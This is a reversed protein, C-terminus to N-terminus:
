DHSSEAENQRSHRAARLRTMLSGGSGVSSTGPEVNWSGQVKFRLGKGAGGGGTECHWTYLVAM